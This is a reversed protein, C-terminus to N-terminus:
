KRGSDKTPGPKYRLRGENTTNTGDVMAAHLFPELIAIVTVFVFVNVNSFMM